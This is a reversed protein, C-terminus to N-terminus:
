LGNVVESHPTQKTLTKTGFPSTSSVKVLTAGNDQITLTIEGMGQTKGKPVDWYRATIKNGTITGMLVNAYAGNPDEGFWYVKDGIQRIFYAGGDDALYYGNLEAALAAASAFVGMLLAGVLLVMMRRAKSWMQKEGEENPSFAAPRETKPQRCQSHALTRFNFYRPANKRRTNM